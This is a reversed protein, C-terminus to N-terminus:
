FSAPGHLNRSVLSRVPARELRTKCYLELRTKCYVTDRVLCTCHCLVRSSRPSSALTRCRFRTSQRRLTAYVAAVVPSVVTCTSGPFSAEHLPENEGLVHATYKPLEGSPSLLITCIAAAPDRLGSSCHVSPVSSHLTAVWVPYSGM